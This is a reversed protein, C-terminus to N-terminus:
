QCFNVNGNLEAHRWYSGAFGDAHWNCADIKTINVFANQIPHDPPFILPTSDGRRVVQWKAGEGYRGSSGDPRKVIVNSLVFIQEPNSADCRAILPGFEFASRCNPVKPPTAQRQRPVPRTTACANGDWYPMDLPCACTKHDSQLMSNSQCLSEKFCNGSGNDELFWGASNADDITKYSAGPAGAAGTGSNRCVSASAAPAQPSAVSAPPGSQAHAVAAIFLSFIAAFAFAFGTKSVKNMCHSRRIQRCHSADERHLCIGSHLM